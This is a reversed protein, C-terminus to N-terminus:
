LTNAVHLIEANNAQIIFNQSNKFDPKFNEFDTDRPVVNIAIRAKGFLRSFIVRFGDPSYHYYRFHQIENEKMVLTM